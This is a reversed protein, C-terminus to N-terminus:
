VKVDLKNATETARAASEAAEAKQMTAAATTASSAVQMMRIACLARMAAYVAMDNNLTIAM